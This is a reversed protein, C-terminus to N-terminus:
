TRVLMDCTLGSPPMVPRLLAPVGAAIAHSMEANSRQPEALRIHPLSATPRVTTTRQDTAM